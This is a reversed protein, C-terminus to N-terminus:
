GLYTITISGSDLDTIMPQNLTTSTFDGDGDIRSINTFTYNTTNLYSYAYTTTNGPLGGGLGQLDDSDSGNGFGGYLTLEGFTYSQGLYNRGIITPLYSINGDISSGGHGGIGSINRMQEMSGNGGAAIILANGTDYDIVYSGGGGGASVKDIPDIDRNQGIQGVIMYLKKGAQLTITASITAGFGGINECRGGRAGVVDFKYIGTTPIILSQVGQTNSIKLYNLVNPNSSFYSSLQSQTPGNQYVAYYSTLKLPFMSYILPSNRFVGDDCLV